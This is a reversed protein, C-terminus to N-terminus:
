KSRFVIRLGSGEVRAAKLAATVAKWNVFHVSSGSGPMNGSASDHLWQLRVLLHVDEPPMMQLDIGTELDGTKILDDLIQALIQSPTPQRISLELFGPFREIVQQRAKNWPHDPITVIEVAGDLSLPDGHLRYTAIGQRRLSEVTLYKRVSDTWERLQPETVEVLSDARGTALLSRAAIALVCCIKDSPSELVYTPARLLLYLFVLSRDAGELSHIYPLLARIEHESLYDTICVPHPKERNEIMREIM